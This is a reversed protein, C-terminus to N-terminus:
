IAPSLYNYSFNGVHHLDLLNILENRSKQQTLIRILKGILDTDHGIAQKHTSYFAEKLEIGKGTLRYKQISSNPKDLITMEIYGGELSPNLYNDRFNPVHRLDLSDMLEQKNKEDILVLILRKVLEDVQDTAQDPFLRFSLILM